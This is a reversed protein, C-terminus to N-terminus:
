RKEKRKEFFVAADITAGGMFITNGGDVIVVPWPALLEDKKQRSASTTETDIQRRGIDDHQVVAVPIWLSIKLGHVTRM